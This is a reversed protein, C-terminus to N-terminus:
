KGWVVTLKDGVAARYYIASLQYYQDEMRMTPAGPIPPLMFGGGASIPVGRSTTVASDGVRAPTASNTSPCVFQVWRAGGAALAHTAGDGTIDAMTTVTVTGSNQVYAPPPYALRLLGATVLMVALSIGFLTTKM